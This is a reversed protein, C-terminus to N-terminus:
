GFLVQQSRHDTASQVLCWVREDVGVPRGRADVRGGARECWEVLQSRDFSARHGSTSQAEGRRDLRFQTHTHAIRQQMPAM